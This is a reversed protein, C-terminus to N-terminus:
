SSERVTYNVPANTANVFKMLEALYDAISELANGNDPSRTCDTETWEVTESLLSVPAEFSDM